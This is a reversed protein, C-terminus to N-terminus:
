GGKVGLKGGIKAGLHSLKLGPKGGIRSGLRSLREPFRIAKLDPNIVQDFGLLRRWDLITEDKRQSDM